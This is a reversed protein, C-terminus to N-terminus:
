AAEREGPADIFAWLEDPALLLTFTALGLGDEDVEPNSEFSDRLAKVLLGAAPKCGRTRSLHLLAADLLADETTMMGDYNCDRGSTALLVDVPVDVEVKVTPKKVETM